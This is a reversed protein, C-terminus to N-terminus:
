VARCGHFAERAHQGKRPLDPCRRISVKLIQSSNTERSLIDGDIPEGLLELLDQFAPSIDRDQSPDPALSGGAHLRTVMTHARLNM